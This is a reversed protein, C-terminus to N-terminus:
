QSVLSHPLREARRLLGTFTPAASSAGIANDGFRVDFAASPHAGTTEDLVTKRDLRIIVRNGSTNGTWGPHGTEPYLAADDLELVHDAKYDIAIPASTTAGAGWNDHGITLEHDNIYHVFILDGAGPRGTCLLPESREGTFSIFNLTLKVPGYQEPPPAPLSDSLRKSSIIQGSFPKKFAVRGDSTGISPKPSSADYFDALAEVTLEGDVTIRMLHQLLHVQGPEFKDFYPHSAPPYLSGM